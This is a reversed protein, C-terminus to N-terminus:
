TRRIAVLWGIGDEWFSTVKGYPSFQKKIEEIDWHRGPFDDIVNITILILAETGSARMAMDMIPRLDPYYNVLGSMVVTDFGMNDYYNTPIEDVLFHGKPNNKVAEAIASESFDCGYLEIDLNSWYNAAGCAMDLVKGTAKERILNWFVQHHKKYNEYPRSWITNWIEPKTYDHRM